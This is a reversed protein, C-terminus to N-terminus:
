NQEEIITQAVKVLLRTSQDLLLDKGEGRKFKLIYVDDLGSVYEARKALDVIIQASACMLEYLDKYIRRNIEFLASIMNTSFSEFDLIQPMKKLDERLSQGWGDYSLLEDRNVGLRFQFSVQKKELDVVNADWGLYTIPFGCHQSYNRLKYIFRYAFNNDYAESCYSKYKKAIPSNNGFEKKLNAETYDLYTRVSSLFNLYYRNIELVAEDLALERNNAKIIQNFSLEISNLFDEYNRPILNFLRMNSRFRSLVGNAEVAAVYEDDSMDFQIIVKDPANKVHRFIAVKWSLKVERILLTM